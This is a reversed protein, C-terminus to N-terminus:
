IGSFFSVTEDCARQLDSPLDKSESPHRAGFTHGGSELELLVSRPNWEKILRAENIPVVLDDKAALILQPIKMGRIRAELNFRETNDLYDKYLQYDLPMDQQTRGNKVIVEGEKQWTELDYAM